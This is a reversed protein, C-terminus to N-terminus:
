GMMPSGSPGNRSAVREQGGPALQRGPGREPQEHAGVREAVRREHRLHDGREVVERVAPGHQAQAGGPELRLVGGEADVEAAAHALPEVPQVLRDLQDARHEGATRGRRAADEVVRVVHAVVRAGTWARSGIRM